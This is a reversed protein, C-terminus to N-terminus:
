CLCAMYHETLNYTYDASLPYVFVRIFLYVVTISGISLDKKWKCAKITMM